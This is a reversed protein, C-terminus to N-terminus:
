FIRDFFLNVNLKQPLIKKLQKQDEVNDWLRTTQRLTLINFLTPEMRTGLPTKPNIIRQVKITLIIM